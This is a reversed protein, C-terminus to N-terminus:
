RSSTERKPPEGEVIDIQEIAPAPAPRFRERIGSAARKSNAALHSNARKGLAALRSLGRNGRAALYSGAKVVRKGNKDAQVVYIAKASQGVGALQSGLDKARHNLLQWSSHTAETLWPILTREDVGSITRLSATWDEMADPGQQLYAQARRGITYTTVMNIGAMTAVGLIVSASRAFLSTAAEEAVEVTAIGGFRRSLRRSAKAALEQGQEGLLRSTGISIGTVVMLANRKNELSLTPAYLEILELVLEGQLKYMMGLDVATGFTLAVITGLGPLLTPSATVAGIAGAQMCKRRILTEALEDNTAQQRTARLTQVRTRAEVENAQTMTHLTEQVFKAIADEQKPQAGDKDPSKESATSM